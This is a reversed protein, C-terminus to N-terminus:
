LRQMRPIERKIETEAENNWETKGKGRKDKKIHETRFTNLM